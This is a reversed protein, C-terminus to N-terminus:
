NVAKVVLIKIKKEGFWRTSGSYALPQLEWVGLQNIQDTVQYELKTGNVTATWAGTTGDPKRYLIQKTAFSSLDQGTEFSILKSHGAFIQDM